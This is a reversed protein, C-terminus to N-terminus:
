LVCILLSGWALIAFYYHYHYFFYDSFRNTLTAYRLPSSASWSAVSSFSSRSSSGSSVGCKHKKFNTFFPHWRDARVREFLASNPKGQSPFCGCIKAFASADSANVKRAITDDAPRLVVWITLSSGWQRRQFFSFIFGCWNRGLPCLSVVHRRHVTGLSPRLYADVAFGKKPFLPV